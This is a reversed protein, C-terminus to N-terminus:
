CEGDAEPIPQSDALMASLEGDWQDVQMVNDTESPVPHNDETHPVKDALTLEATVGL